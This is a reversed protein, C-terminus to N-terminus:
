REREELHEHLLRRVVGSLSREERIALAELRAALEPEILTTLRVTRYEPPRPQETTEM